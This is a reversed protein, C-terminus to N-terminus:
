ITGFGPILLNLVFQITPGIFKWIIAQGGFIPFILLILIYIGYQHLIVDWKSAIDDPLLGILIKGGDLPHIPILNFIALSVNLVILQFLISGTIENIEGSQFLFHLILSLVSALLINSIPGAVSIIATDRRPNALNYPDFQVPKGWGIPAVLILLTGLLDLHKLPNLTLRGQARPTPDGLRDAAFAHAFEHITIAVFLALIRFIFSIPDSYLTTLM